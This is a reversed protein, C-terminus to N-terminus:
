VSGRRCILYEVYFMDLTNVKSVCDIVGLGVRGLDVLLLRANLLDGFGREYNRFSTCSLALLIPHVVPMRLMVVPM